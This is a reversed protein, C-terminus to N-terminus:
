EWVADSDRRRYQGFELLQPRHPSPVVSWMGRWRSRNLLAQRTVGLLPPRRSPSCNSFCDPQTCVTGRGCHILLRCLPTCALALRGAISGFRLCILLTHSLKRRSRGFLGCSRSIPSYLVSSPFFLELSAMPSSSFVVCRVPSLLCSTLLSSLFPYCNLLNMVSPPLLVICHVTRNGFEIVPPYRASVRWEWISQWNRGAVGARSPRACQLARRPIHM